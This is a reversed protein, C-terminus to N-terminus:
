FTIYDLTIACIEENVAPVAAIEAIRESTQRILDRIKKQDDKTVAFVMTAHVNNSNRRDFYTMTIRRMAEHYRGMIERSTQLSINKVVNRWHDGDKEILNMQELLLLTQEVLDVPLFFKTAISQATTLNPMRLAVRIASCYWNSYYLIAHQYNMEVNVMKTASVSDSLHRLQTLKEKLRNKLSESNSREYNVLTLFYEAEDGNLSWFDCLGSAQDPTLHSEGKLVHSFFSSHCAAAAAVQSQYGRINKNNRIKDLIIERYNPFIWIAM